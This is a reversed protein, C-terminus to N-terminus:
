LLLLNYFFTTKAGDTKLVAGGNQANVSIIPEFPKDYVTSCSTTEHSKVM